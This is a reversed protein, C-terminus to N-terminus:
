VKAAVYGYLILLTGFDQLFWFPVSNAINDDGTILFDINLGSQAFLGFAMAALGAKYIVHLHTIRRSYACFLVIMSTSFDVIITMLLCWWELSMKM